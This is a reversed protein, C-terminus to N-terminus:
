GFGFRVFRLITKLLEIVTLNLADVEEFSSLEVADISVGSKLGVEDQIMFALSSVTQCCDVLSQLVTWTGIFDQERILSINTDLVDVKSSVEGCCDAITELVTFTAQSDQVLLDIQTEISDITTGIKVTIQRIGEGVQPDVFAISIFPM